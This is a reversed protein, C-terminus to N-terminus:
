CGCFYGTQAPIYNVCGNFNQDFCVQFRQYNQGTAPGPPTWCEQPEPPCEQEGCGDVSYECFSEGCPYYNTWQGCSYGPGCDHAPVCAGGMEAMLEPVMAALDSSSVKSIDGFDRASPPTPATCGIAAFTLLGLCAFIRTM